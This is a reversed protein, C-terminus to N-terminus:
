KTGKHRLDGYLLDEVFEVCKFELIRAGPEIRRYLPMRIKWPRTFTKPDDITAEYLLHYPSTATYREVVHMGEGHFDGATDFWTQDISSTVDIVLTEGEWHGRSWGMWQDVPAEDKSNMYVTRPASAFEYSFLIHEPTQVIEFPYPMYTARPVGPMYCKVAPDKTLWNALNEQKKAKASEQYPIEGGEVISLGPPIAGLAGMAM